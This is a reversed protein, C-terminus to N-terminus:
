WRTLRPLLLRALVTVLGCGVGYWVAIYLPDDFPCALVFVFAGWGAAGLGAALATGRVDTAAGRRMLIGLAVVVPASLLVMKYVCQVGNRWDLREVLGPVGGQAADILWGAALSAVVVGLLWRLGDRPSETPNLSWVAVSGGIGAILGLSILRWWFSPMELAAPMDPRMGAFLLFLVVEVCGVFALIAADVGVSRRRVPKLDGALRSILDDSMM